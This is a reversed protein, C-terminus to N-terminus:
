NESSAGYQKRYRNCWNVMGGVTHSPDRREEGKENNTSKAIIATRVLIFHYRMTAKIRMEGTNLLTSCRKMHTKAVQTDEKSFHRSQDEAWKKNPNNTKKIHLQMLQKYM